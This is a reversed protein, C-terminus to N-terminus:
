HELKLSGGEVNLVRCLPRVQSQCVRQQVTGVAWRGLNWVVVTIIPESVHTSRLNYTVQPSPGGRSIPRGPGLTELNPM